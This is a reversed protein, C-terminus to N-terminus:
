IKDKKIECISFLAPKFLHHNIIFVKDHHNHIKGITYNIIKEEGAKILHQSKYSTVKKPTAVWNSSDMSYSNHIVLIAGNHVKIHFYREGTENFNITHIRKRGFLKTLTIKETNNKM